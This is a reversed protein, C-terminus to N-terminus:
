HNFFFILIKLLIFQKTIIFIIAKNMCHLMIFNCPSTHSQDQNLRRDHGTRSAYMQYFIFTSIQDSFNSHRELSLGWLATRNSIFKPYEGHVSKGCYQTSQPIDRVHCIDWIHCFKYIHENVKQIKTKSCHEIGRQFSGLFSIQM